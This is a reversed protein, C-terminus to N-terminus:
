KAGGCGEVERDDEVCVRPRVVERSASCTFGRCARASADVCSTCMTLSVFSVTDRSGAGATSFSLTNCLTPEEEWWADALVSEVTPGGGGEGGELVSSPSSIMGGTTTAVFDAGTDERGTVNSSEGRCDELARLEGFMGKARGCARDDESVLPDNLM